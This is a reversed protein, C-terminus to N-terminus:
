IGTLDLILAGVDVTLQGQSAFVEPIIKQWYLEGQGTIDVSVGGSTLSLEFTNTASTVVFYITGETLGTPLSEAFVNFVMVRDGDSLGHAASQIADATAGASDVTGFGKVTGNIPAYGRYNGSNATLHNYFTLFGVTTGAPIDFTLAGTNAKQGSAAAGLTVAKRAYAPSGGTVEGAAANTGTGPDTLTHVGVHTIKSNSEDLADLMENKAVDNFPM